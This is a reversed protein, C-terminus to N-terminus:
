LEETVIEVKVVRVYNKFIFTAGGKEDLQREMIARILPLSIGNKGLLDATLSMPLVAEIVLPQYEVVLQKVREFTVTESVEVVETDSGYIRRLEALQEPSAQHRTIRLVREMKVVRRERSLIGICQSIARGFVGPTLTGCSNTAYMYRNCHGERYDDGTHYLSM